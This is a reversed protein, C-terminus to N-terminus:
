VGRSHGWALVHLRSTLNWRRSVVADAVAGLTQSLEDATQGEPMIWVPALDHRAVVTAVEDLDDTSQVVFKFDAKGSDRFARLASPVLRRSEPDGSHALKPSVVFRRVLRQVEPRPARTGNTEVEVAVGRDHLRQLVPILRPQQNLPEGGTLIILDVEMDLLRQAVEDASMPHLEDAPVHAVPSSIGTWDWTYPTDCWRCSLNCGGLRLFGCIRGASPGEGQM